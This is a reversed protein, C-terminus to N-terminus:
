GLSKSIAVRHTYRSLYALVAKPGAFPRKAYVVWEKKRLPTLWKTFSVEDELSKSEGFFILQSQQHAEAIKELYLRRFLRSLVRLPVSQILQWSTLDNL